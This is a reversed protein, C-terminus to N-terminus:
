GLGHRVRRGAGAGHGIARGPGAGALGVLYRNDPYARVLRRIKEAVRNRATEDIVEDLGDLLVLCRGAKLQDAFFNDPAPLSLPLLDADAMMEALPRDDGACARLPLYIPLLDGLSQLAPQFIERCFVLILWDLLTSKGAGPEGLILLNGHQALAQAITLSRDTAADAGGQASGVRLSVYVEKLPPRTITEKGSIGVLKLYRHEEALAPAYLELFRGHEGKLRDRLKEGWAQFTPGLLNNFVLALIGGVVASVLLAAIGYEELFNQAPEAPQRVEVIMAPTATPAATVTVPSPTVITQQALSGSWRSASLGLVLTLLLLITVKRLM